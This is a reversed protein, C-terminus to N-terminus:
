LGLIEYNVIIRFEDELRPAGASAVKESEGIAAPAAAHSLPPRLRGPPFVAM